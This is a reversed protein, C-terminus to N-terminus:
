STVLSKYLQEIKAMEKRTDANELAVNQAEILKRRILEKPMRSLQLFMDCLTNESNEKLQWVTSNNFLDKDYDNNGIVLPTGVLMSEIGSVPTGDSSPIMVCVDAQLYENKMQAQDLAPLFKVKHDINLEKALLRISKSWSAEPWNDVMRLEAKPFADLYNKFAKLIVDQNCIKKMTRASFIRRVGGSHRIDRNVFQDIFCGTRVLMQEKVLPQFELVADMQRMSTSTILSACRYAKKHFYRGFFHTLYSKSISFKLQTYKRPLQELIDTGRTTIIFKKGLFSGWQCKLEGGLFHIISIQNESLIRKYQKTLRYRLIFNLVPLSKLERIVKVNDHFHEFESDKRLFVISNVGLEVTLYNIWKIDHSPINGDAFYAINM